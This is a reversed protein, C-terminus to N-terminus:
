GHMLSVSFTHLLCRTYNHLVNFERRIATDLERLMVRELCGPGEIEPDPNDVITVCACTRVYRRRGACLASASPVTYTIVRIGRVSACNSSLSCLITNYIKLSQM